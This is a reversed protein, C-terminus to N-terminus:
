LKMKRYIKNGLDKIKVKNNRIKLNIRILYVIFSLVTLSIIILILNYSNGVYENLKGDLIMILGLAFLIIGFVYYPVKKRYTRNEKKLKKQKLEYRHVLKEKEGM